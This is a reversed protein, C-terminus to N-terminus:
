IGILANWDDKWKYSGDENRSDEDNMGKSVMERQCENSNYKNYNIDNIYQYLKKWDNKKAYKIITSSQEDEIKYSMKSTVGNGATTDVNVSYLTVKNDILAVYWISGGDGGEFISYQDMSVSIAFLNDKNKIINGDYKTISSLNQTSIEKNKLYTLSFGLIGIILLSIIIIIITKKKM